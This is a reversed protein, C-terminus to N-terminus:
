KMSALRRKRRTVPQPPAEGVAHMALAADVVAAIPRKYGSAIWELAIQTVGGFIGAALLEPPAGGPRAAITPALQAIWASVADRVVADVAPSVGGIEVLFVRAAQPHARLAEFYAHLMARKAESPEMSRAAAILGERTRQAVAQYAAALLADSSPFSEYFYRETLGAAECVAKVSANRYGVQGYILIAAEVLAARREAHREGGSRGCYVRAAVARKTRVGWTSM